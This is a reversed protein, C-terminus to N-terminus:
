RENVSFNLFDRIELAVGGRCDCERLIANIIEVQRRVLPHYNIEKPNKVQEM